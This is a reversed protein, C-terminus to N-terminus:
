KYDMLQQFPPPNPSDTGHQDTRRTPPQDPSQAAPQQSTDENQSLVMVKVVTGQAKDRSNIVMRCYFVKDPYRYGASLSIGSTKFFFIDQSFVSSLHSIRRRRRRREFSKELVFVNCRKVRFRAFPIRVRKQYQPGIRAAM